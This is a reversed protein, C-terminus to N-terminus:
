TKVSDLMVVAIPGFLLVPLWAALMPPLGVYRCVYVFAYFTGVILLCLTASARVNRERSLIFPLGLLLMILNNIPDTFRIYKTLLAAERDPVRKLRILRTLQATSMFELWRGSQRLVLDETTLDSPYFLIGGNLEWYNKNTGGGAWRASNGAITGLARGDKATFIFRPNLLTGAMSGDAGLPGPVFQEAKLNMGCRVDGDKMETSDVRVIRLPARGLPDKQKESSWDLIRTPTLHNTWVRNVGAAHSLDQQGTQSLVGDSIMWGAQGDLRGPFAKSGSVRGILLDDESRILILPNDMQQDAPRFKRSYWVTGAGDTMLRVPFKETGPPDDRSRVLKECVRPILVEQDIVILGALAMSCLIMPLVVRHLSVGSALMATLENTHNMMAMTFTAAAIIIVGGLEVCYVLSQYGYYSVINAIVDGFSEEVNQKAKVFEDMNIFLDTIIRLAMLVAFWLLASTLFSRIVYRDLIRM